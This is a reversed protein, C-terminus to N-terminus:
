KAAQHEMVFSFPRCVVVPDWEAGPEPHISFKAADPWPSRAVDVQWEGADLEGLPILAFHSTAITERHPVFFYKITIRNGQREVEHLHVFYGFAKSFFVLSIKKNAPFSDRRKQGDALVAHAKRLAEKGSGLVAFGPPAPVGLKTVGLSERIQYILSEKLRRIQEGSGLNRVKMGFKDPELKEVDRTGPMEYAWIQHLPIAEAEPQETAPEALGHQFVVLWIACGGILSLWNM